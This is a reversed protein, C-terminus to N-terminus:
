WEELVWLIDCFFSHFSKFLQLNPLLATFHLRQIHYPQQVWSSVAVTTTLVLSSCSPALWSDMMSQSPTWLAGGETTLPQYAVGRRDPTALPPIIMQNLITPELLNDKSLYILRWGHEYLCSLSFETPWLVLLYALLCVFSLLLYSPFKNLLLAEASNPPFSLMVPCFSLFVDFVHM